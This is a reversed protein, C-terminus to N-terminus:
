KIQMSKVNKLIIKKNSIEKMWMEFAVWFDGIGEGVREGWGVWEQKSARANGTIPCIIKALGLTQGGL